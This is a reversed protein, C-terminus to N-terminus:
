DIDLLFLLVALDPPPLAVAPEEEVRACEGLTPAAVELERDVGVLPVVGVEVRPM